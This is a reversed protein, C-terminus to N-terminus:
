EKKKDVQVIHLNNKESEIYNGLAEIVDKLRKKTNITITIGLKVHINMYGLLQKIEKFQTNYMKNEIVAINNYGRDNNRYLVMDAEGIKVNSFGLLVEREIQIDRNLVLLRKLMYEIYNSIENETLKRIDAIRNCLLKIINDIEQVIFLEDPLNLNNSEKVVKYYQEKIPRSALELVETIDYPQWEKNEIKEICSLVIRDCYDTDLEIDDFIVEYFFEESQLFDIFHIPYNEDEIIERTLKSNYEYKKAKYIEKVLGVDIPSLVNEGGDDIANNIIEMEYTVIGFLVYKYLLRMNAYIIDSVLIDKIDLIIRKCLGFNDEVFSRPFCCMLYDEDWGSGDGLDIYLDILEIM